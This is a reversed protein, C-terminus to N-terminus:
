RQPIRGPYPKTQPVRTIAGDRKSVRTGGMGFSFANFYWAEADETIWNILVEGDPCALHMAQEFTLGGVLALDPDPAFAVVPMAAELQVRVTVSTYQPDPAHYQLVALVRGHIGNLVLPADPIEHPAPPAGLGTVWYNDEDTRTLDARVDFLTDSSRLCASPLVQVLSGWVLPHLELFKM